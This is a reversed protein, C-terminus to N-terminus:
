EKPAGDDDKPAEEEVIEVEIDPFGADAEDAEVVDEFDDSQPTNVSAKAEALEAEMAAIKENIVKVEDCLVIFSEGPDGGNLDCYLRGIEAYTDELNKRESGLDGTMRAIRGLIKAKDGAGAAFEKAAGGAAQAIDKAMDAVGSITAKFAKKLDNYDSM